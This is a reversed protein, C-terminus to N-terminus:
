FPMDDNSAPHFGEPVYNDNPEIAEVKKDLFEIQNVLIDTTYAKGAGDKKEYSGMQLKGDILVKSGKSTYNAIAEATKNFAVCNIFNTQKKDGWGENNAISFKVIAKGETSYRLEADKTLNGTIVIKNM